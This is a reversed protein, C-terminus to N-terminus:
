LSLAKEKAPKMSTRLFALVLTASFRTAGAACAACSLLWSFSCQDDVSSKKLFPLERQNDVCFSSYFRENRFVVEYMLQSFKFM